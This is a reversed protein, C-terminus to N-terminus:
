HETDNEIKSIKALKPDLDRIRKTSPKVDNGEQQTSHYAKSTM